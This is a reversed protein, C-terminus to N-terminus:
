FVLGFNARANLPAGPFVNVGPLFGNTSEDFSTAAYQRDFLNEIYLSAYFPGREYYAGADWRVFGPLLVTRQLDAGRETLAVMGLALGFVRDGDDYLNYRTWVNGTNYPVNRQQVGDVLLPVNPDSLETDTYAYNAIVSWCDTIDGVLNIEAGQTREIGDQLFALTTPDTFPVNERVTHFGCATLTVCDLVRVKVGAEYLEGFEPLVPQGNLSLLGGPPTFSRTYAFYYSLVDPVAEYVVGARPSWRDFTQDNSFPIGNLSRDFRLDLHDYRVGGLLHWREGVQILDQLYVGSRVQKFLPVDLTAVPTVPVPLGYVPNNPDFPPELLIGQSLLSQSEFYVQETGVLLKHNIGGTCFDGALNAILSDAQEELTFADRARNFPLFPSLPGVAATQSSDLTYFLGTAGLNLTWSDSLEHTLMVSVRNDQFESFDNGPEGFYIDRRFAFPDGGLAFIGHDPLRSDRHYEYSATLATCDNILWTVTPAIIGRNV